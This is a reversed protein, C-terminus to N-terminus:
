CVSFTEHAYFTVKYNKPAIHNVSSEFFNRSVNEFLFNKFRKRKVNKAIQFNEANHPKKQFFNMRDFPVGVCKKFNQTPAFNGNLNKLM